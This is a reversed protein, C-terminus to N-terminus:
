QNLFSATLLSPEFKIIGNDSFKVDFVEVILCKASLSASQVTFLFNLICVKEDVFSDLFYFGDFILDQVKTVGECVHFHVTFNDAGDLFLIKLLVDFIDKKGILIYPEDAVHDFLYSFIWLGAKVKM